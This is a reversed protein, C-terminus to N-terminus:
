KMNSIIRAYRSITYPKVNILERSNGGKTCFQAIEYLKSGRKWFEGSFTWLCSDITSVLWGPKESKLLSKEAKKLDSINNITEFPTWGDWQGSTYNLAIFDEDLYKVEPYSNFGAKTFMYKLGVSKVTKVIDNKIPGARYFEYPRYPLFFKSWGIKQLWRKVKDIYDQKVFNSIGGNVSHSNEDGDKGGAYFRIQLYPSCRLLRIPKARKWWILKELDTDMTSWWGRPVYSGNKVKKSIRSLGDMLNERLRDNRIYSEIGVGIGCSGLVPEILPYVGGQELRVTLLEFPSHMMYEYNEATVVLGCKLRTIAFLEMLSNFNEIERIMGSWFMLSVLIRGERAFQRLDEDTYESDYFGEEQRTDWAYEVHRVSQFPPRCPDIVQFCQNLRSLEFFDKDSYQRGYIVKGKSSIVDALQSVIKEQPISYIGILDEDCAKPVWHSVLVPDGLIWGKAMEKWRWALRRTVSLYDDDRKLEDIVEIDYGRTLLKDTINKNVCICFIRSGDQLLSALEEEGISDPVGIAQRYYIEPYFYADLRSLKRGFDAGIMVVDSPLPVGIYSFTEKYIVSIGDSFAVIPINLNRISSLFMTDGFCIISVDFNLLIFYFEAFHRGGCVTGGSLEGADLNRSDGGPFHIGLHYSDYYNDFLYNKSKCLWALTSAISINESYSSKSLFLLLKRKM